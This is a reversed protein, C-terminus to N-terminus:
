KKVLAERLKPELPKRNMLEETLFDIKKMEANTGSTAKIPTAAAAAQAGVCDSCVCACACVRVRACARACTRACARACARACVCARARACM